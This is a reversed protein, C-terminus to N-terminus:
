PDTDIKEIKRDPMLWMAAVTVYMAGSIWVSYFSGAIGILYFVPTLKGKINKGLAKALESDNGNLALIRSQLIGYAISAMFLVVGYFTVPIPAFDNEGVWGTVFPVLSLWFLLHLNSWMIGANIRETGHLLHHHNNWYIALNIYSLVYSGFVPLIRRLVDVDDDDPIKLELVMITIVIALVGDSFTELRNTKM